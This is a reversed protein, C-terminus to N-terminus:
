QKKVNQKIKEEEFCIDLADNEYKSINELILLIKKKTELDCEKLQDNIKNTVEENELNEDYFINVNTNDFNKIFKLVENDKYLNNDLNNIFSIFSDKNVRYVPNGYVVKIKPMIEKIQQLQNELDVRNYNGFKRFIMELLLKSQESIEYNFDYRYIPTYFSYKFEDNIPKNDEAVCKKLYEDRDVYAALNYFGMGKDIIFFHSDLVNNNYKITCLKYIVLLRNIKTRYCYYKCDTKYFLSILYSVLNGLKEDFIKTNKTSQLNSM